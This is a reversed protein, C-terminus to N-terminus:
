TKNMMGPVISSQLRAMYLNVSGGGPASTYAKEATKNLLSSKLYQTNQNM